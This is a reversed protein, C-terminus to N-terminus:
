DVAVVKGREWAFDITTLFKSCANGGRWFLSDASASVNGCGHGHRSFQWGKITRGTKLEYRMPWSFVTQGVIVPHRNQEGHGGRPGYGTDHSAKWKERGDDADLARIFYWLKKDIYRNGSLILTDDAYNIYVILRNDTLDLRLRWAQRGSALDIAVLFNPGPQFTEMEMRGLKNAVADPSHSEVFYIRGDGITITTNLIVAQDCAYTWRTKGSDANLAFLGVSTVLKMHDYWLELDAERSVARYAATPLAASGVLLDGTRAIYGWNMPTGATRATPMPMTKAIKGTRVNMAVSRGPDAVYLYDDDVCMAGCDLFVGLRRAGAVESRWLIAGNHADVGFVVGDGPVFLRGAKALPPTNRHHRDLIEKPGPLGFWQLALKGSVHTESTSATNGVDAYTHTWEGVKDPLPTRVVGSEDHGLIALSDPRTVRLAETRDAAPKDGIAAVVDVVVNFLGDSYAMRDLPGQHVAVRVGRMGSADLKRHAEAARASDAIRCVIQWETRKALEAALTPSNDGMLLCYGRPGDALRAIREAAAALRKQLNADPCPVAVPQPAEITAPRKATGSAAQPEAFCYIHGADTSVLLRGRAAALGYARGQVHASWLPKDDPRNADFAAVIGEGGGFEISGTAIRAYPAAPSLKPADLIKGRRHAKTLVAGKRARGTPTALKGLVLSPYGQPSISIPGVGVCKGTALDLQEQFVGQLPFIGALVHVTGGEIIPGTRYPVVSIIRENGPIMRETAATPRHSWLLKGDDLSLCYVRGDDCGVVARGNAIAPAVRVPGETFFQWVMEGTHADLCVVKDESSSGFLVRDGVTVAHFARDYIVRPELKPKRHFYDAPAPAPWAPNPARRPKHVWQLDLPLRLPEPATGSRRNDRQYTPWDTVPEPPEPQAYPFAKKHSDFISRVETPTLARSWISVRELQGSLPDCRGANHYAGLTLSAKPPYAIPGRQETSTAVQRGDVYLTQSTGDYTGVVHYWYGPQMSDRAKIYTLRGAQATAVAFAFQDGSNGLFWGRHITKSEQIACAFGGLREPKDVQVWAEVTIAKARLCAAPLGGVVTLFQGTKVKNRTIVDLRLAHPPDSAFKVARDASAPLKGALPAFSQGSLREATFQWRSILGTDITDVAAASAASVGWALTLAFVMAWCAVPSAHCKTTM